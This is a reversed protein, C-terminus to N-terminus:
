RVDGENGCDYAVNSNYYHVRSLLYQRHRAHYLFLGIWTNSQRKPYECITSTEEEQFTFGSTINNYNDNVQIRIKVMSLTLM